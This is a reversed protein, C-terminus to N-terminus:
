IHILSLICETRTRSYEYGRRWQGAGSANGAGALPFLAALDTRLFVADNGALHSLLYGRLTQVPKKNPLRPFNPRPM